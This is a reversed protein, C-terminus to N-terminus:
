EYYDPLMSLVAISILCLVASINMSVTYSHFRDYLAGAAVPALFASLGFGTFVKGFWVGFSKAGVQANYSRV